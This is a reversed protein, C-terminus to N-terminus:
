HKQQGPHTPSPHALEAQQEDVQSIGATTSTQEEVLHCIHTLGPGKPHNLPLLFNHWNFGLLSLTQIYLTDGRPSSKHHLSGPVGPAEQEAGKSNRSPSYKHPPSDEDPHPGPFQQTEQVACTLTGSPNLAAEGPKHGSPWQGSLACPTPLGRGRPNTHRSPLWRLRPGQPWGPTLIDGM